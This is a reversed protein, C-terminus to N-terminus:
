ISARQGSLGGIKFAVESRNTAGLKRMINRIHVKVTSESLHLEYAISKNAKGCRLARAVASQRPTFWQDDLVQPARVSELSDRLAMLSSAPVFRGGSIALCIAHFCVDIDVSTPIYGRAGLRIIELISQFDREHSLVVVATDPFEKVVDSILANSVEPRDDSVHFLVARVTGAAMTQRKDRWAQLSPFSLASLANQHARFAHVLCERKLTREDIIVICAEEIDISTPFAAFPMEGVDIFSPPNNWAKANRSQEQLM